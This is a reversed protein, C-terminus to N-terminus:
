PTVAQPDEDDLEVLATRAMAPTVELGSAIAELMKRTEVFKRGDARRIARQEKLGQEAAKRAAQADEHAAEAARQIAALTKQTKEDAM